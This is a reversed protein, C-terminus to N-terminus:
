GVEIVEHASYWGDGRSLKTRPVALPDFPQTMLGCPDNISFRPDFRAFVEEYDAQYVRAPLGKSEPRRGITSASSRHGLFTTKLASGLSM